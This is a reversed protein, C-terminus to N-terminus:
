ECQIFLSTSFYQYATCSFSISSAMSFHIFLLHLQQSLLYPMGLERNEERTQGEKVRWVDSERKFKFTLTYHLLSLRVTAIYASSPPVTTNHSSSSLTSPDIQDNDRLGLFKLAKSGFDIMTVQYSSTKLLKEILKMDILSDDVVLVHFRSEVAMGM